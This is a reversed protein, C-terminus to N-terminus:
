KQSFLFQWILGNLLVFSVIAMTYLLWSSKTKVKEEILDATPETVGESKLNIQQELRELREEIRVLVTSIYDLAQFLGQQNDQMGQAKAKSAAQSLRVQQLRAIINLKSLALVMRLAQTRDRPPFGAKKDLFASASDFSLRYSQCLHQLARERDTSAQLAVFVVRYQETM